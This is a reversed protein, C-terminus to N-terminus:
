LIPILENNEDYVFGDEDTLYGDASSLVTATIRYGEYEEVTITYTDNSM